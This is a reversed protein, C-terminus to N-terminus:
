DEDVSRVRVTLLHGWGERKAQAMLTEAMWVKVYKKLVGQKGITLVVEAVFKKPKSM